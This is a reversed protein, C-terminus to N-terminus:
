QQQREAEFGECGNSPDPEDYAYLCCVCLVFLVCVCVCARAASILEEIM